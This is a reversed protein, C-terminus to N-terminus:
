IYFKWQKLPAYQAHVSKFLRKKQMSSYVYYHEPGFLLKQRKNDEPLMDLTMIDMNGDRNVDGIDLGMSFQSIQSLMSDTAMIFKGKQDNILLKDSDVYDNSIYLDPWGDNNFDSVGVGLGYNSAPGYIGSTDSVDVFRGGDNRLLRNGVYPYRDLRNIVKINFSNSIQLLSHNLLFADLDGDRDYDFFAAQTSYSNDDLGYDSARDTFTLDGNNILLSNKRNNPDGDASRCVYIDLWGDANIDVMSVGTKWGKQCGAGSLSTIDEFKFNGKNLYLKNELNNSSFYIDTLGDNNIDGIAVGGGNYLYEYTFINIQENEANINNFFIGTDDSELRYFKKKNTQNCGFLIVGLLLGFIGRISIKKNM